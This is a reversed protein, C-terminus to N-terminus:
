RCGQSASKEERATEHARTGNCRGRQNLSQKRATPRRDALLRRAPLCRLYRVHVYALGGVVRTERNYFGLWQAVMGYTATGGLCGSREIVATRAGARAASVAAILGSAGGGAVIVDYQGTVRTDMSERFAEITMVSEGGANNVVLGNESCLSIPYSGHTL